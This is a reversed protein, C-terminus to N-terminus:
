LIITDNPYKRRLRAEYIELDSRRISLLREQEVVSAMRKNLDASIAIETNKTSNIQNTILVLEQSKENILNEYNNKAEITSSELNEKRETLISIDNQVRGMETTSQGLSRSLISLSDKRDSITNELGELEIKAKIVSDELTEVRAFHEDEIIKYEAPTYGSKRILEDKAIALERIERELVEKHQVHHANQDALIRGERIRDV